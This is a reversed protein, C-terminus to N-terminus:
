RSPLSTIGDSDTQRAYLINSGQIPTFSSNWNVGDSSYEVTAGNKVGEEVIEARHTHTDSDSLGTDRLLRLVPAPPLRPNADNDLDGDVDGLIHGAETIGSSLASGETSGVEASLDGSSSSQVRTEVTASVIQVSAMGKLADLPKTVNESEVTIASNLNVAIQSVSTALAATQTQQETTAGAKIAAGNFLTETQTQSKLDVSSGQVVTEAMSTIVNKRAETNNTSVGSNRLLAAGQSTTTHIQTVVAQTRLADSVEAATAGTKVASSIPDYHKLDLGAAIGLASKVLTEAAASDIGGTSAVQDILTTLPSIVTAGEPATFEGDAPRGTAIDTGGISILRGLIPEGTPNTLIFNGLEDTTTSLEGTDLVGNNNADAFVTAGSIYGDIVLGQHSSAATTTVAWGGSTGFAIPSGDGNGATGGSVWRASFQHAGSDINPTEFSWTGNGADVSADGLYTAGDYIKLLESGPNGVTGIGGSLTLTADDSQGGPAVSGQVVGSDDRIDDIAPPRVDVIVSGPTSHNGAGDTVTVTVVTADSLATAPTHSWFGNSESTLEISSSGWTLSVSAGAEASGSLVRGNSSNIQPTQPATSDYLFDFPASATSYNGASDMQRVYLRNSGEQATFSNAWQQGDLSYEVTAGSEVGTLTLTGNNTLQDSNSSGSDTTLTITPAAPPTTDAPPATVPTEAVPTETTPTETVPDETTPPEITTPSETEPADEEEVTPANNINEADNSDDGDVDGLETRAQQLASTLADGSLTASITNVSGASVASKLSDQNQGTVIQLAAMEKLASYPDATTAISQNLTATLTAVESLTDAPLTQDPRVGSAATQLLTTIVTADSLNLPEGAALTAVLTALIAETGTAIDPTLASGALLAGGTQILVTLRTTAAQVALATAVMEPTSEPAMATAIPDYNLLDLAPDVGLAAKLRTAATASDIGEREAIAAILTTLPSIVTAGEPARFEGIAAFGTAIDIGGQSILEGKIPTDDANELLFNGKADTTSSLEGADLVGNGNADAFVTADRVYGDIVKGSHQTPTPEVAPTEVEPPNAESDSSGRSSQAFALLGAGIGGWLLAGDDDRKNDIQQSQETEWVVTPTVSNEGGTETAASSLIAAENAILTGDTSFITWVDEEFFGELRVVVQEETLVLLTTGSRLLRLQSPVAGTAADVVTYAAPSEVKVTLPQGSVEITQESLQQQHQKKLLLTTM